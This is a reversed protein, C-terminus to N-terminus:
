GTERTVCILELGLDRVRTLLGHLAAQDAVAGTLSTSGDEEADVQFGDFWSSWRRDLRGAVRIRYVEAPATGPSTVATAVARDISDVPRNRSPTAATM